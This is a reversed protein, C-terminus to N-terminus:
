QENVYREVVCLLMGREADDLIHHMHNGETVISDVAETRHNSFKKSDYTKHNSELCNAEKNSTLIEQVPMEGQMVNRDEELANLATKVATGTIGAGALTQSAGFSLWSRGPHRLRTDTLLEFLERSINKELIDSGAHQMYDAPVEVGKDSNTSFLNGPTRSGILIYFVSCLYWMADKVALRRVRLDKKLNARRSDVRDEAQPNKKREVGTAGANHNDVLIPSLIEKLHRITELVLNDRMSFADQCLGDGSTTKALSCSATFLGSVIGQFFELLKPRCDIHLDPGNTDAGKRQSPTAPELLYGLSIMSLPLFSRIVPSLLLGSLQNFLLYAFSEPSLPLLLFSTEIVFQMLKRLLELKNLNRNTELISHLVDSAAHIVHQTASVFIDVPFDPLEHLSALQAFHDLAIFLTATGTQFNDHYGDDALEALM